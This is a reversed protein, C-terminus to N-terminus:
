EYYGGECKEIEELVRKVYVPLIFPKRFPITIHTCGPKRYVFHSGKSNSSYGLSTLLKDIDEFRVTKSNNRFQEILKEPKTM